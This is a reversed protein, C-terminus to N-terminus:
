AVTVKRSTTDQSSWTALDSYHKTLTTFMLSRLSIMSLLDLASSAIFLDDDVM